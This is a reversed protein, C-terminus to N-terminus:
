RRPLPPLRNQTPYLIRGLGPRTLETQIQVHDREM